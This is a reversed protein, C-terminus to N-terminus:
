ALFFYCKQRLRLIMVKTQAEAKAKTKPDKYENITQEIRAKKDIWWQYKKYNQEFVIYYTCNMVNDHNKSDLHGNYYKSRKCVQHTNDWDSILLDFKSGKVEVLKNWFYFEFKGDDSKAEMKEKTSLKLLFSINAKPAHSLSLLSFNLSFSSRSYHVSSYGSFLSQKILLRYRNKCIAEVHYVVLQFLEIVSNVLWTKIPSLSMINIVKFEMSHLGNMATLDKVFGESGLITWIFSITNCEYFSETDYQLSLIPYCLEVLIQNKGASFHSCIIHLM